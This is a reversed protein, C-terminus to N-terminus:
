FVFAPAAQFGPLPPLSANFAFHEGFRDGSRTYVVARGSGGRGVVAVLRGGDKLQDLLPAPIEDVAGELVIVDFPGEKALGGSLPAAVVAANAAEIANLADSAHAALDPDSEIAVVTGAMRALVAASYGTGCGIDLVIDGSEIRALQLLKALAMPKILFRAGGTGQPATIEIDSDVYALARKAAPVFQERPVMAMAGLVAKDTVDCTRLQSDIMTARADAFDAM